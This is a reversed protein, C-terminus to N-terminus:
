RTGKKLAAWRKKMGLSIAKRAKRSMVKKPKAPTDMLYPKVDPYTTLLTNIEERLSLVKTLVGIHLLDKQEADTHGSRAM